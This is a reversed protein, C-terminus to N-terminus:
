VRIVNARKKSERQKRITDGLDKQFFFAFEYLSGHENVAKNFKVGERGGREKMRKREGM